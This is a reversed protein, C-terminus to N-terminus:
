FNNYVFEIETNSNLLLYAFVLMALAMFLVRFIFSNVVKHFINLLKKTSM